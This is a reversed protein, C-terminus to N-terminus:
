KVTNLSNGCPVHIGSVSAPFAYLAAAFAARMWAGRLSVRGARSHADPVRLFSAPVFAGASVFILGMWVYANGIVIRRFGWVSEQNNSDLVHWHPGLFFVMAFLLPILIHHLKQSHRVWAACLVCVPAAWVWHHSWSAGSFAAPRCRCRDAHFPCPKGAKVARSAGKCAIAAITMCLLGWIALAATGSPVNERDDRSSVPKGYVVCVVRSPDYLLEFWYKTSDEPNLVFGLM